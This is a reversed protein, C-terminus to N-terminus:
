EQEGMWSVDELEYVCYWDDGYVLTGNGQVVIVNENNEDVSGELLIFVRGEPPRVHSKDQLWHYFVTDESSRITWMEINGNTMETICQSNMFSAIGKDYNCEELWMAVHYLEKRGAYPEEIALKVTSISSIIICVSVIMTIVNKMGTLNFVDTKLELCILMIGFPLIPLWFKDAYYWDMYCLVIGTVAIAVISLVLMLQECQSFHSYNKCLRVMSYIIFLGVAFGLASAIGDFSFVKTEKRFGFLHFFDIFIDIVSRVGSQWEIDSQLQFSYKKTLFCTNILYGIINFFTFLYSYVTYSLKEKKETRILKWKTIAEKRIDIYFMVIVALCLPAFFSMTQRPGNLGSAISLASGALILLVKKMKSSEEGALLVIIGLILFSFVPFVFYYGGYTSYFHHKFGFPWILFAASWVGFRGIKCAHMLFLWAAIVTIYFVAMAFTRAYTWNNPFFLLGIRYFWQLNFVRIETSYFWNPSLIGGENNLVNALVMEAALDADIIWEGPVLQYWINVVYGIILWLWSLFSFLVGKDKQITELINFKNFRKYTFM